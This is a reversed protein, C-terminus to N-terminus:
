NKKGKGFHLDFKIEYVQDENETEVELSSRTSRAYSVCLLANGKDKLEM